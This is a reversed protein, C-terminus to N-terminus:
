TSQLISLHYWTLQGLPAQVIEDLSWMEALAKMYMLNARSFGKMEPFAHRLDNALREIVKAGWGERQQRELIGRGIEWYLKILETNIAQVARQQADAIRHKLESLWNGYDSPLIIGLRDM